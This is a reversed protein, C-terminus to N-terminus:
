LILSLFSDRSFVPNPELNPPFTVAEYGTLHLEIEDSFPVIQGPSIKGIFLTESLIFLSLGLM